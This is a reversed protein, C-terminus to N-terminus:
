DTLLTASVTVVEKLPKFDLTRNTAPKQFDTNETEDSEHTITESLQNQLQKM